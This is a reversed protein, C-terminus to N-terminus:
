GPVPLRGSLAAGLVGAELAQLVGGQLGPVLDTVRRSSGVRCAHPWKQAEFTYQSSIQEVTINHVLHSSRCIPKLMNCMHSLCTPYSTNWTFATVLMDRHTLNSTAPLCTADGDCAPSADNTPVGPGGARPPLPPCGSPLAHAALKNADGLLVAMLEVGELSPVDGEEQSLGRRWCTSERAM